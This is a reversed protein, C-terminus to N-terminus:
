VQIERGWKDIETGCKGCTYGGWLAQQPSKPTRVRTLAALCHPCSVSDTNIGWRNRVTTGYIVLVLGMLLLGFLGAVLIM